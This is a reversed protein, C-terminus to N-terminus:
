DKLIKEVKDEAYEGYGLNSIKFYAEWLASEMAEAKKIFRDMHREDPREARWIKLDDSLKPM